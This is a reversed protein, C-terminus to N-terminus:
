SGTPRCTNMLACDKLAYCPNGYDKWGEGPKVCTVPDVYHLCQLNPDVECPPGPEGGSALLTHCGFGAVALMFTALVLKKM